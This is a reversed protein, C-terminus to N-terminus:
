AFFLWPLLLIRKQSNFLTLMIAETPLISNFQFHFYTICMGVGHCTRGKFKIGFKGTMLKEAKVSGFYENDNRLFVM